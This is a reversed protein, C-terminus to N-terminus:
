NMNIGPRMFLCNIGMNQNQDNRKIRIYGNEGWKPGFTSKAIWYDQQSISDIGYGVVMFADSYCNGPFGCLVNDSYNNFLGSTYLYSVTATSCFFLPGEKLFAYVTESDTNGAYPREWINPAYKNNSLASDNCTGKKGTYPYISNEYVGQNYLFNYDDDWEPSSFSTCDWTSCDVINQPSLSQLKGTKLFNWAEILYTHALVYSNKCEFGGDQYVPGNIGKKTWDIPTFQGQSVFKSEIKSLSNKENIVPKKPNKLNWEEESWDAYFTVGLQYSNITNSNHEKIKRINLKFNELRKLGELSTLEYNKSHLRHFKTFMEEENLGEYEELFTLNPSVSILLIKILLIVAILKM